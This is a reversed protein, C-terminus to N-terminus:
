SERFWMHGFEVGVSSFQPKSDGSGHSSLRSTGSRCGNDYKAQNKLLTSVVGSGDYLCALIVGFPLQIDNVAFSILDKELSKHAEHYCEKKYQCRLDKTYKGQCLCCLEWDTNTRGLILQDNM